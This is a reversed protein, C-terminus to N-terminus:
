SDFRFIRVKKVFLGSHIVVAVVFPNGISQFYAFFLWFKVALKMMRQTKKKDANVYNVLIFQIFQIFSHFATYSFNLCYFLFFGNAIQAMIWLAYAWFFFNRTENSTMVILLHCFFVSSSKNAFSLSFFSHRFSQIAPSQFWISFYIQRRLVKSSSSIIIIMSYIVMFSEDFFWMSDSVVFVTHFICDLVPYHFSWWRNNKKLEDMMRHNMSQNIEITKKQM